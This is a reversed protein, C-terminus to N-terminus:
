IHPLCAQAAALCPRLARREQKHRHVILKCQALFLLFALTFPAASSGRPNPLTGYLTVICLRRLLIHLCAQQPPM